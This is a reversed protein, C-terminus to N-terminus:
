LKTLESCSKTAICATKPSCRPDSIVATGLSLATFNVVTGPPLGQGAQVAIRAVDRVAFAFPRPLVTGGVAVTLPTTVTTTKGNCHQVLFVLSVGALLTGGASGSYLVFLGFVKTRLHEGEYILVPSANAVISTQNGTFVPNISVSSAVTLIERARRKQVLYSPGLGQVVCTTNQSAAIFVRRVRRSNVSVFRTNSVFIALDVIITVNEVKGCCHVFTLVFTTMPGVGGTLLVDIRFFESCLGVNRFIEVPTNQPLQLPFTNTPGFAFTAAESHGRRELSHCCEKGHKDDERTKDAVTASHQIMDELNNDRIKKEM